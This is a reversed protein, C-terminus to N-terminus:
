GVYCRANGYPGNPEGVSGSKLFPSLKLLRQANENNGFRAFYFYGWSSSAYKPWNRDQNTPSTGPFSADRTEPDNAYGAILAPDETADLLFSIITDISKGRVEFGYADFGASSLLEALAILNGVAQNSYHLASGGRGSDRPLSGDKRQGKIATKYIGFAKNIMQEDGAGYGYAAMLVGFLYQKNDLKFKKLAYDGQLKKIADLLWAEVVAREEDSYESSHQAYAIAQPTLVSLVHFIPPVEDRANYDLPRQRANGVIENRLEDAARKSVVAQSTLATIYTAYRDTFESVDSGVNEAYVASIGIKAPLPGPSQAAMANCLSAKGAPDLITGADAPFAILASAFIGLISISRM